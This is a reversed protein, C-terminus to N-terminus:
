KDLPEMKLFDTDDGVIVDDQSLQGCPAPGFEVSMNYFLPQSVFQLPHVLPTGIQWTPKDSFLTSYM